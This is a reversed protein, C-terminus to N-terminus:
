SKGKEPAQVYDLKRIRVVGAGRLGWSEPSGVTFDPKGVRSTRPPLSRGSSLLRWLPELMGIFGSPAAALSAKVSRTSNGLLDFSPRKKGVIATFASDCTMCATVKRGYNEYLYLLLDLMAEASRLLDDTETHLRLFRLKLNSKAFSDSDADKPVAIIPGAVFFSDGIAHFKELLGRCKSMATDIVDCTKQVEKIGFLYNETTLCSLPELRITAVCVDGLWQVVDAYKAEGEVKKTIAPILPLPILMELLARYLAAERLAAQKAGNALVLAEFHTRNQRENVYMPVACSSAALTVFVATLFEFHFTLTFSLFGILLM